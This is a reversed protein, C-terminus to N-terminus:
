VAGFSSERFVANKQQTQRKKDYQKYHNVVCTLPKRHWPPKFLINSSKLTYSITKMLKFDTM